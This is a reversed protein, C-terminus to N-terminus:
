NDKVYTTVTVTATTGGQSKATIKFATCASLPINDVVSYVGGTSPSTSDIKVPVDALVATTASRLPLKYWTTGEDPSCYYGFTVDTATGLAVKFYNTVQSKKLFGEDTIIFVDTETTNELAKTAQAAMLPANYAITAQM